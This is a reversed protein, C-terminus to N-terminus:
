VGIEKLRNAMKKIVNEWSFKERIIKSTELAKVKEKELNNKLDEMKAKFDFQEPYAWFSNDGYYPCKAVAKDLRYNAFHVGPLPQGTEDLLHEVYASWGTVLVPLGCALAEFIPLGFGEGSSMSLYADFYNYLSGMRYYDISFNGAKDLIDEKISRVPACGPHFNVMMLQQHVRPDMRTDYSSYRITLGIEEDYNFTDVFTQILPLFNKREGWEGVSLFNYKMDYHKDFPIIGPHLYETDIGLPMVYIPIKVGSEEFTLKNFNSPVWLEDLNNIQEIWDKPVDTTELMTYGIKYDGSNKNMIDGQGFTIQVGKSKAQRSWKIDDAYKDNHLSESFKTGFVYSYNVKIKGYYDLNKIIARGSKAYGTEAGALSQISVEGEYLSEYYDNWKKKYLLMSKHHLEPQSVKNETTSVNTYHRLDYIASSFIEWGRQRARLCFDDDECYSNFTEDLFFGDKEISEKVLEEKIYAFAFNVHEVKKLRECQNIDKQGCYHPWGQKNERLTLAGHHIIIKTNNGDYNYQKIGLVGTNEPCEKYMQKQIIDIWNDPFEDLDNNLLLLDYGDKLKSVGQNAGKTFGLNTENHYVIVNSNKNSLKRLYSKTEDISGNNIFCLIDGARLGKNMSDYFKKTYEIANWCLVVIFVPKSFNKAKM